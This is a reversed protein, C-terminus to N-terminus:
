MKPMIHGVGLEKTAEAFHKFHSIPINTLFANDSFSFRTPDLIREYYVKLNSIEDQQLSYFSFDLDDWLNITNKESCKSCAYDFDDNMGFKRKKIESYLNFVNAKSSGGNYLFAEKLGQLTIETDNFYCAEIQHACYLFYKDFTSYNEKNAYELAGFSVNDIIKRQRFVVRLLGKEPGRAEWVTLGHESKLNIDLYVINPIDALRTSIENLQGCHFCIDRKQYADDANIEMFYHAYIYYFDATFLKLPDISIHKKLFSVQRELTSIGFFPDNILAFYDLTPPRIYIVKDYELGGSPLVLPREYYSM